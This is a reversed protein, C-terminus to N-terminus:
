YIRMLTRLAWRDNSVRRHSLQENMDKKKM